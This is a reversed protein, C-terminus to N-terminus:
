YLVLVSPDTDDIGTTENDAVIESVLWITVNGFSFVNKASDHQQWDADFDSPTAILYASENNALEVLNAFHSLTGLNVTPNLETALTLNM